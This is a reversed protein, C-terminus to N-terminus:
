CGITHHLASNTNKQILIMNSTDQRLPPAGPRVLPSLISAMSENESPKLPLPFPGIQCEIFRTLSVRNREM